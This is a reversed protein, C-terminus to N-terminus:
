PNAFLKSQWLKSHSTKPMFDTLVISHDLVNNCNLLRQKFGNLYKRVIVNFHDIGSDVYLKSFSVIGKINFLKRYVANYAVVAKKYIRDKYNTWLQCCYISHLYANFLHTKVNISCAKFKSILLNGRTYIAKVHRIIDDNDSLCNDIIM